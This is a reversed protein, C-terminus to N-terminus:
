STWPSSGSALAKAFETSLIESNVKLNDWDSQFSFM